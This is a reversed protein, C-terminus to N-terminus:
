NRVSQAKNLHQTRKLVSILRIDYTHGIVFHIIKGLRCSIFAFFCTTVYPVFPLRTKKFYFSANYRCKCPATTYYKNFTIRIIKFHVM